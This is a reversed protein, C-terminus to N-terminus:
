INVMWETVEKIFQKDTGKLGHSVPQIAMTM